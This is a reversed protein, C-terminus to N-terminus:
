PKVIDLSKMKRYLTKRDIKLAQATKGQHWEYLEFSRTLIQREVEELLASLSSIEEPVDVLDLLNGGRNEESSIDIFDLKGLTIYRQITNQLERVNGPWSHTHLMKRIQTPLEKTGDQDYMEFFHDILLRIDDQRERLPPLNIPIVHIRYLFDQRMEGKKVLETLEKNTAAIIRVDPNKSETGGLPTFGGGEIARLFKVQMQLPIDGIEDLFLTGGDAIDLFGHKDRVAGSFAGQKYGFFESEILNEPIAGCNVCIFPGNRPSNEHIAQAVLEKGTGSEGYIIVSADSAAADIITRYVEQMPKSKGIINGFRFRDKLSSLLLRNEERLQNEREEAELLEQKQKTIDHLVIQYETIEQGQDLIPLVTMDYWRQDMPNFLEHTFPQSFDSIPRACWEEASKKGFIATYCYEGLLSSSFHEQLQNNVQTIIFNKDCAFIFGPYQAIVGGLKQELGAQYSKNQKILEAKELAQEVAHHLIDYNEVPKTMYHWAGLHLAQIVDAMEGEGSIVIIPTDPNDTTVEQLVQFGDMVPMKLDVLVVNPQFHYYAKLGEKGNEAVLVTNGKEEFYERLVDLIMPDDDICLISKM